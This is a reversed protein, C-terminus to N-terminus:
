WSAVWGVRRCASGRCTAVARASCLQRAASTRPNPGSGAPRNQARKPMSVVASRATKEPLGPTLSRMSRGKRSDPSAALRRKASRRASRRCQARRWQSKPPGGAGAAGASGGWAVVQYQLKRRTAPAWGGPVLGCRPGLGDRCGSGGGWLRPAGAPWQPRPLEWRRAGAPPGPHWRMRSRRRPAVASPEPPPRGPAARGRRCNCPRGRRPRPPSGAAGGPPGRGGSSPGPLAPPGRGGGGGPSRGVGGGARPPGPSGAM